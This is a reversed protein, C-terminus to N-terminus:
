ASAPGKEHMLDKEHLHQDRVTEDPLAPSDPGMKALLQQTFALVEARGHARV